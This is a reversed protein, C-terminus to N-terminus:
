ACDRGPPGGTPAPPVHTIANRAPNRSRPNCRALWTKFADPPIVFRYKTAAGRWEERFTEFGGNKEVIHADVMPHGTRTVMFVAGRDRWFLTQRLLERYSTRNPLHVIFVAEPQLPARLLLDADHIRGAAWDLAAAASVPVVCAPPPTM